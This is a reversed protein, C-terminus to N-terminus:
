NSANDRQILKSEYDLITKINEKELITLDSDKFETNPAYWQKSKFYKSLDKSKFIRGRRAYFENRLLRLQKLSLKNLFELDIKENTYKFKDHRYFWVSEPFRCTNIRFEADEAPEFEKTVWTMENRIRIFKEIEIGTWNEFPMFSYLGLNEDDNFVVTFTSVGIKGYWSKGTGVTYAVVKDGNSIYGYPATYFIETYLTQKTPFFVEKVKWKKTLHKKGKPNLMYKETTAVEKNNVLTKFNIYEGVSQVNGACYQPFGVLVSTSSGHNYFEFKVQVDYDKKKLTIRVDERVMQISNHENFLEVNGGVISIATDDAYVYITLFLSITILIIKKM